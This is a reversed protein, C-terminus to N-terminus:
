GVHDANEIRLRQNWEHLLESISKILEATKGPAATNTDNQDLNIFHQEITELMQDFEKPQRKDFAGICGNNILKKLSERDLRASFALVPTEPDVTKASGALEAAMHRGEFENDILYLDYGSKLEPKTTCDVEIGPFRQKLRFEILELAFPDDDLVMIRHASKTTLKTEM